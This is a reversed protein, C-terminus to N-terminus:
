RKEHTRFSQKEQELWDIFEEYSIWGYRRSEFDPSEATLELKQRVVEFFEEEAKDIFGSIIDLVFSYYLENFERVSISRALVAEILGWLYQSQNDTREKFESPTIEKSVLKSILLLYKEDNM